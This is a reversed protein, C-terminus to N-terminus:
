SVKVHTILPLNASSDGVMLAYSGPSVTWSSRQENWWALARQGVTFSVRRTQGPRLTVRQFGM